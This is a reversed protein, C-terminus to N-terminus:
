RKRQDSCHQGRCDLLSFFVLSFWVWWVCCNAAKRAVSKDKGRVCGCCSVKKTLLHCTTPEVDEETDYESEKSADDLILIAETSPEAEDSDAELDSDDDDDDYNHTQREHGDNNREDDPKKEEGERQSM